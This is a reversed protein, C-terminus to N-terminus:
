KLNTEIIKQVDKSFGEAIIPSYCVLAIKSSPKLGILFAPLLRSSQESKGHQPPAFLMLKKYLGGAFDDLATSVSAHFPTM